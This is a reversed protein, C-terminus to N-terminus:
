GRRKDML